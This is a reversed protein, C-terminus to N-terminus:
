NEEIYDTIAHVAAQTEEKDQELAWRLREQLDEPIDRKHGYCLPLDKPVYRGTCTPIICKRAM